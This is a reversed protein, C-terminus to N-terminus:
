ILLRVDENVCPPEKDDRLIVINPIFNRFINLIRTNFFNVQNHIDQGSFLKNWDFNEIKKNILHCQAKGFDWVECTYPPPNEIQLNLKTYVAQHHCKSHLSPHVGADMILNPQNMVFIDICSSSKELVYTPGAILQSQVHKGSSNALKKM